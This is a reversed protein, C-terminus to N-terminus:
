SNNQTDILISEAFLIENYLEYLYDRLNEKQSVMDLYQREARFAWLLARQELEKEQDNFEPHRSAKAWQRWFDRFSNAGKQDRLDYIVSERIKDPLYINEIAKLGEAVMKGRLKQTRIAAEKDSLDHKLIFRFLFSPVIMSLIIVLMEALVIMDFQSSSVNDIIMYVLALTVAGHVGGLAFILSGKPEMKTLLGYVFRVLLNVFYLVFGVIIWQPNTNRAILDTRIIRVVLIGLIVFVTNNLIERILNLLMLGNHYQRPTVFRSRVSESNQMLGACVVAIIGSVRLEEAVFYVFFPTSIFLLIQANYASHNIRGLFQRFSIMILATLVGIIIGGIASRFFDLFTQQYNLQGNKVWLAMASVLIIGSADNFLSEMKLIDEQEEPVILGESVSETATADTPTSLAGMLFALALSVGTLSVAFGAFITGIIVLLVATEIIQRLRKGILNIRTFQGEFYILPAVIYMFIETHFPAVRGNLFPVLGIIIGVFISIYNISFHPFFSSIISSLVAAVMLVITSVLM